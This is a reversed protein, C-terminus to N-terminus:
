PNKLEIGSVLNNKPHVIEHVQFSAAWAQTEKLLIGGEYVVVM